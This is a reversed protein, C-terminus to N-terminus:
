VSSRCLGQSGVQSVAAEVQAPAAVMLPVTYCRHTHRTSFGLTRYLKLAPANDAEVFLTCAQM